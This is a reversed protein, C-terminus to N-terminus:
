LAGDSKRPRGRKKPEPLPAAFPLEGDDEVAAVPAPPPWPERRCEGSALLRAVESPAVCDFQTGDARYLRIPESM